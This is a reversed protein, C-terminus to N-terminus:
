NLSVLAPLAHCTSTLSLVATIRLSVSRGRSSNEMTYLYDMYFAGYRQLGATETYTEQSCLCLLVTKLSLNVGFWQLKVLWLGIVSCAEVCVYVPSDADTSIILDVNHSWFVGCAAKISFISM